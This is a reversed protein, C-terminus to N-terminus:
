GHGQRPALFSLNYFVDALAPLLGQGIKATSRKAGDIVRLQQAPKNPFLVGKRTRKCNGRGPRRTYIHTTEEDPTFEKDTDFEGGAGGIEYTWDCQGGEPPHLRWSVLFEKKVEGMDHALSGLPGELLSTSNQSKYAHRFHRAEGPCEMPAGPLLKNSYVLHPRKEPLGNTLNRLGHACLHVLQGEGGLRTSHRGAFEEDPCWFTGRPVMVAFCRKAGAQRRLMTVPARTGTRELARPFQKTAPDSRNAIPQPWSRPFHAIWPSGHDRQQACLADRHDKSAM